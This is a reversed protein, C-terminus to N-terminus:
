SKFRTVKSRSSKCTYADHGYSDHSQLDLDSNPNPDWNSVRDTPPVEIRLRHCNELEQQRHITHNWRIIVRCRNWRPRLDSWFVLLFDYRALRNFGDPQHGSSGPINPFWRQCSSAERRSSFPSEDIVRIRNNNNNYNKSYACLPTITLANAQSELGNCQWTDVKPLNNVCVCVCVCVRVCVTGKDGLLIINMKIWWIITSSFVVFLTM